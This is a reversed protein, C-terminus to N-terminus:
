LLQRWGTLWSNQQLGKMYDTKLSASASSSSPFLFVPNNKNLMQTQITGKRWTKRGWSFLKRPNKQKRFSSVLLLLWFRYKLSSLNAKLWPSYKLLLFTEFSSISLSTLYCLHAPTCSNLFLFGMMDALLPAKEVKSSTCLLHYLVKLTSWSIPHWM